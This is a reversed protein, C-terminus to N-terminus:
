IDQKSETNHRRSSVQKVTSFFAHLSADIFPCLDPVKLLYFMLLFSPIFAESSSLAAHNVARSFALCAQFTQLTFLPWPDFFFVFFIFYLILCFKFLDNAPFGRKKFWLVSFLM